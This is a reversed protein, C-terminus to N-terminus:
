KKTLRYTIAHDLSQRRYHLAEYSQEQEPFKTPLIQCSPLISALGETDM